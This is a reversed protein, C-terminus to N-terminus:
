LQAESAETWLTKLQQLTFDLNEDVVLIKAKIDLYMHYAKSFEYYRAGNLYSKYMSYKALNETKLPPLLTDIANDLGSKALLYYFQTPLIDAMGYYDKDIVAQAAVYTQESVLVVSGDVTPFIFNSYLLTVIDITSKDYINVTKDNLATSSYTWNNSFDYTYISEPTTLADVAQHHFKETNFCHQVFYTLEKAMQKLTFITVTTWGSDAKFDIQTIGNREANIIVSLIRDQDDKSTKVSIGNPFTLGSVEVEWRKNTIKDKVEKRLSSLLIENVEKNTIIWSQTGNSLSVENTEPDTM